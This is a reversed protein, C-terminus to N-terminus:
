HFNKGPFFLFKREWFFDWKESESGVFMEMWVNESSQRLKLVFCVFLVWVSSVTEKDCSNSGFGASNILIIESVSSLKWQETIVTFCTSRDLMLPYIAFLCTAKDTVPMISLVMTSCLCTTATVPSPVLSPGARFFASTPKAMTVLVIWRWTISRVGCRCINRRWRQPIRPQPQLSWSSGRTSSLPVCM